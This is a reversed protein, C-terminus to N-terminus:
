VDNLLELCEYIADTYGNDPLLSTEKKAKEIYNNLLVKTKEIGSAYNDAETGLIVPANYIGAEIDSNSPKSSDTNMINILDDRIQFATGINLGLCSLRNLDYIKDKDLMACTLFATEFLYATKNKTKELYDEITSKKFRLYNQNIEGICMQRITKAFQKIVENNGIECLKDLAIALLYDGTIVATKSGFKHSVTEQGRRIPSKDIIDDHILSANHVLEIVSLVEIQNKNLNKGNAKIYLIPLVERIRKSPANLFNKLATNLTESLRINETMKQETLAIEESVLSKIRNYKDDFGM